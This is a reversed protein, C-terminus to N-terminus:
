GRLSRVKDTVLLSGFEVNVLLFGVRVMVVM